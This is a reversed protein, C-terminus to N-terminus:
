TPGGQVATLATTGTGSNNIVRIGCVPFAYNSDMNATQGSLTPHNYWTAGAISFATSWVDDFTHQVTYNVTGTVNVGLGIAFPSKNVDPAIIVTTSGVNTVSITTPRM